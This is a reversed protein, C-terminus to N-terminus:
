LYTVQSKITWGANTTQMNFQAQSSVISVSATVATTSGIDLTSNDTYQVSTGNWVAMVEGTRANSASTVTYFYKAATFSGTAQTFLTNAGAASSASRATTITSIGVNLSGTINASGSIDLLFNPSTTGIGVKGTGNPTLLINGNGANTALTLNGTNTAITQAGASLLNGTTGDVAWRVTNSTGFRVSDTGPNMLTIRAGAGATIDLDVGASGSITGVSTLNGTVNASGNFNQGWITRTNTLTNASTATSASTANTAWSATGALNPVTVTNTTANFTLTSSDVRVARNGTTGDGFMLYYPGTGTTTDTVAVNNANTATTATTANNAWSATGALNTVALTTTSPNYTLTTTDVNLSQNGSSGGTFTVNYTVPTTDQLTIGVTKAAEAYSSSVVFSATLANSASTAFSASTVFSATTAFSSSVARSSSIAFSASTISNSGFPGFVNSGTVFSATQATTVNTAWSATGALNTVTITNTLPAYLFTSSDVQIAANGTAAAVFPIYFPGGGSSPNDTIGVNVANTANNAWSSTGQLSGTFSTATVSTLGTLSSATAGLSISSNGVMLSSTALQNSQVNSLTGGLTITGTTTIPGGTLTIGNVTGATAVNTVTGSGGGGSGTAVTIVNGSTDVALLATATGPFASTSNYAPLAMQKNHMSWWAIEADSGANTGRLIRLRNQYNDIMSASTYTGGPANFGLQGGEGAADRAGLTVTNESAGLSSSGVTLSSTILVAGNVHLSASPTTTNIGLNGGTYYISSNTLTLNGNAYPVYGVFPSGGLYFNNAAFSAWSSSLANSSSIAYSSSVVFSATLANSSSVAFSATGQLSGTIGRLVRLSGTIIVSGSVDLDANPTTNGLGVRGNNLVYLVNTASNNSLSFIPGSGINQAVLTPSNVSNNTASISSSNAAGADIAPGGNTFVYIGTGNAGTGTGASTVTLRAVTSTTGIAVGTGNDYILSSSLSNTGTFKPVYNTTGSINSVFSATLANSSSVAFSATGQLSGTFGQTAIVSGTVQFQSGSAFVLNSRSADLGTGNGIIFASDASSSLNYQGIVSQYKGFSVSYLGAAHSYDASATTFYGEAHSGNQQALTYQGETHSHSGKAVTLRGEAHSYSGSALTSEGEAHSEDGVAQTQRGQAHSNQGTASTAGGQLFRGVQTLLAGDFTLSSEGNITSGGTATLIYNDTNNTINSAISSVLSATSAFSSSVARSSSVAFSASIISNSGFPGFVNSGTVFSATQATTVFSATTANNAWSATGFLSGTYSTAFVNGNIHLSGSNPTTTGIGVNGSSSIFMRTSGNTEFALPQNDNTGLLATTGFSNGNQIFANTTSNLFSSTSAFSASLAQSAYSATGTLPGFHSGSFSGTFSTAQLSGTLGYSGTLQRSNTWVSGSRVLLDGYSSTTSTDLVNHLEELEYGNDIRVYIAGNNSPSDRVVQGLRVSHLPALPASGTISGAAGLYLVQGSIFGTVDVGTLVGETTIFGTNNNTITQSAIGLTNASLSDSEYSATIVYPTDSSNNSGTLHVVTGKSITNGSKNIVILTNASTALSFSSTLAYSATVVSNSGFPGYVNSATVFSATQANVAWSSTGYLSGTIGNTVTLSNLAADSGSILM